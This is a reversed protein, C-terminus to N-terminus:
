EGQVTGYCILIDSKTSLNRDANVLVGSGDTEVRNKPKSIPVGRDPKNGRCYPLIFVKPKGRLRECRDNYFRSIIEQIELYGGDTFQVHEKGGSHSGHTMLSFVLCDTRRLYDSEVLRELLEKLEQVVIDEYYFIVFGMQRFVWILNNRDMHAGNRVEPGNVGDPFNIINVFFLVGRHKSRMHYATVMPHLHIRNSLLFQPLKKDPYVEEEYPRLELPQRLNGPLTHGNPMISPDIQHLLYPEGKTMSGGANHDEGAHVCKPDILKAADQFNTHCMLKFAEFADPGRRTLKELLRRM